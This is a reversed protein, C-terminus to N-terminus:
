QHKLKLVCPSSYLLKVTHYGQIKWLTNHYCRPCLSYPTRVIRMWCGSMRTWNSHFSSAELGIIQNKCASLFGTNLTRGVNLSMSQLYWFTQIKTSVIDESMKFLLTPCYYYNNDCDNNTVSIYPISCYTLPYLKNHSLNHLWFICIKDDIM